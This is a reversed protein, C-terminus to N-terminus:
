ASEGHRHALGPLRSLVTLAHAGLSRKNPHHALTRAIRGRAFYFRLYADRKAALLQANTMDSCNVTGSHFDFSEREHLRPARGVTQEYIKSGKFPVLLFFSASHLRTSCAYDITAQAEARVETPFGLIFFGNTYMGARVTREITQRAAELDLERGLYKQLRASATEIAYSVFYTGARRLAPILDAPMRDARLGNPFALRVRREALGDCLSHARAADLNFIDDTIEFERLRYRGALEDVEALVNASSRPRFRKGFVNHCYICQYPCGRSTLVSMYRRRGVPAASFHQAYRELDVLDWAPFPLGDLDGLAPRPATRTVTGGCRLALGRVTSPDRKAELEALLEVLTEEGEGLVAADINGDALAGEPDSTAYPGGVILATAPFSHRLSRATAHMAAADSTFASLGIVDPRMAQVREVLALPSLSEVKLDVVQVQWGARRAVAALYLLGLPPIVMGRRSTPPGSRVLALVSV